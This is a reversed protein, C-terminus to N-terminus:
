MVKKIFLEVIPIDDPEDIEHDQWPEVIVGRTKQTIFTKHERYFPIRAAYFTGTLHYFPELSQRLLHPMDTNPQLFKRVMRFSLAPHSRHDACVSVIAPISEDDRLTALAMTIDTTLRLPATPELLIFTDYLHGNEELWDLVNLIVSCTPTDDKALTSKRKFPCYPFKGANQEGTPFWLNVKDIYKQSDTTVILDLEANIAQRISWNLLERNGVPMINKHEIGKSGSRAPIIAISKM